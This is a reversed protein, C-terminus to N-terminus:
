CASNAAIYNGQEDVPEKLHPVCDPQSTFAVYILHVNAGVFVAVGAAIVLWVALPIGLWRKKGSSNM